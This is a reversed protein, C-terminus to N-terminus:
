THPVPPRHPAVRTKGKLGHVAVELFEKMSTPVHTFLTNEPQNAVMTILNYTCGNSSYTAIYSVIKQKVNAEAPRRMRSSAFAATVVSVETLSDLTNM